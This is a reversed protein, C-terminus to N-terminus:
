MRRFYGFPPIFATKPAYRFALRLLDIGSSRGRVLDKVGCWYAREALSRKGLRLLNQSDGLTRGDREFFSELAAIRELLDRTRERLYDHTRNAAHIRKIGVTSCTQAVEGLRALRLLMEFDDTHPLSPRYHGAAKHAATRVLVMGAAIYAEPKRCRERIFDRGDRIQWQSDTATGAQPRAEGQQWHVDEGLAFTARPHRELISIMAALSGPVLLDDSCLIMMYDARAWEVGENFSAHPGLNETRLITEVRDDAAALQRAVGPSGDTSANDIILLRLGAVEQSLVSEVCDRLFACQQYSPVVVDVSAM